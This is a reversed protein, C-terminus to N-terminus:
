TLLAASKVQSWVRAGEQLDLLRCSRRTLNALLPTGEVDLRILVQAESAGEAIEVITAEFCNLISTGEPRSLSLSVDRAQVRCRVESFQSLSAHAVWLHGGPFDLRNLGDERTDSVRAHIIVSPDHDFLQALEPRASVQNFPGQARVRGDEVLVLTDALRCLEEQSHSVYLVPISLAGHLRELYPLMESKRAADLASLPEDLLLLGPNSLLARAIAVRQAEGGSLQRPMRPLLGEIGFRSAIERLQISAPRGARKWGYELNAQVSLHPFLSGGQAVYGLSRRQPPIFIGHDSDQWVEGNVEVRADDLRDLGAIARLISTKGSGSPGFLACVGPGSAGLEVDLTFNGRRSRLRATVGPRETM